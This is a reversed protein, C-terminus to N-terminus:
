DKLWGKQLGIRRWEEQTIGSYDIRATAGSGAPKAAAAKADGLITFDSKFEALDPINTVARMYEDYSLVGNKRRDYRTFVQDVFGM